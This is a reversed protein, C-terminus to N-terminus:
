AGSERQGCVLTRYVDAVRRAASDWSFSRARSRGAEARQTAGTGRVIALFSAAFGSVDGPQAYWACDGLVEELVPIRSAAVPLGCALAQLPPLGFGEYRSPFALLTARAYLDLLAREDVYGRLEVRGAVGCQAAAQLVEQAYPTLPGVAVMRLEPLSAMARVATVLDKRREVTGVCLIFPPDDAARGLAFYEEGVGAGAVVIRSRDIRIAAAVDERAAETDVVVANARRALVPQLGGYYWRMYAKSTGPARLMAVDHLTLVIPRMAFIPLTGGTFHVVDANSRAALAPARVQDWWLRRDFRWLDFRPDRLEVVELDDRRKLAAALGAAYVGLGTPTGVAFQTEVAVRIRRM